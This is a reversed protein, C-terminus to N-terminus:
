YNVNFKTGLKRDVSNQSIGPFELSEAVQLNPNGGVEECQKQGIKYPSGMEPM